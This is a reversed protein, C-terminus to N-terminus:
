DVSGKGSYFLFAVCSLTMELYQINTEFSSM